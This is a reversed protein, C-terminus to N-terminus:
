LMCKIIMCNTQEFNKMVVQRNTGKKNCIHMKENIFVAVGAELPKGLKKRENKKVM